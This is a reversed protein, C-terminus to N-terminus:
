HLRATLRSALIYRNKKIVPTQDTTINNTIQIISKTEKIFESTTYNISDFSGSHSKNSM